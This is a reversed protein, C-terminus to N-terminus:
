QSVVTAVHAIARWDLIYPVGKLFFNPPLLFRVRFKALWAWSGQHCAWWHHSWRYLLLSNTFSRALPKVLFSMNNSTSRLAAIFVKELQAVQFRVVTEQHQEQGQGLLLKEEVRQTRGDQRRHGLGDDLDDEREVPLAGVDREAGDAHWVVQGGRQREDDAEVRPKKVQHPLADKFRTENGFLGLDRTWYSSLNFGSLWIYLSGALVKWPPIETLIVKYVCHWNVHLITNSSHQFMLEIFLLDVLATAVQYFKIPSLISRTNLYQAACFTRAM